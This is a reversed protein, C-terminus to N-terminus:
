FSSKKSFFKWIRLKITIMKLFVRHHKQMLIEGHIYTVYNTFWNFVCEFKSLIGQYIIIKSGDM